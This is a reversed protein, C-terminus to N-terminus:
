TLMYSYFGAGVFVNKQGPTGVVFGEDAPDADVSVTQFGSLSLFDTAADNIDRHQIKGGGNGVTVRVHHLFGDNGAYGGQTIITAINGSTASGNIVVKALDTSPFTPLGGGQMTKGDAAVFYITALPATTTTQNFTVSKGTITLTKQADVVFGAPLVV